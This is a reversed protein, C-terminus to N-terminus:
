GRPKEEDCCRIAVRLWRLTMRKNLGLTAEELEGAESGKGARSRASNDAPLLLTEPREGPIKGKFSVLRGIRDRCRYDGIDLLGARRRAESM